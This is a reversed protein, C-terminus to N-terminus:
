SLNQNKLELLQAENIITINLNKAKELKSGANEGAVVYDTKSSVSSTVKGGLSEIIQKAENRKLTPLTGTLVFIKGLLNGTKTVTKELAFNLNVAKLEEILEINKPLKFWQVVSSAIEVGIGYVAELDEQKAAILNDINQLNEALIKANVSGVYRIGLGYLVREFPQKKSEDIAKILKQASKQGMRDIDAIESAQLHYLDAISKVLKYDMLAMVVKEGLGQIDMASREAWHTLSGRLIANCSSNVCRTVAENEPRVLTSGCEPCDKPLSFAQTNSPRLDKIVEVVEPIIEGAKRITVTDGVRIDLEQVRDSNHLTARQVMTGGLPVPKMIAM